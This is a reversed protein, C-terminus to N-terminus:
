SEGMDLTPRHYLSRRHHRQPDLSAGGRAGFTADVDGGQTITPYADVIIDCNQSAFQAVMEWSIWAASNGASAASIYPGDPHPVINAGARAHVWGLELEEPPPPAPAYSIVGGTAASSSWFVDGFIGQSISGSNAISDPGPVIGHSASNAGVQSRALAPVPIPAGMALAQLQGAIALLIAYKMLRSTLRTM